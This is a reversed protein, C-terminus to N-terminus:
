EIQPNREKNKEVKREALSERGGGASFYCHHTLTTLRIITHSHTPPSPKLNKNTQNGDVEATWCLRGTKASKSLNGSHISPFTFSHRWCKAETIRTIVLFLPVPKHTYNRFSVISMLKARIRLHVNELANEWEWSSWPSQTQPFCM